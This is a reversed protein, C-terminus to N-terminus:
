ARGRGNWQLRGESLERVRGELYAHGYAVGPSRGRIRALLEVRLLGGPVRVDVGFGEPDSRPEVQEALRARAVAAAAAVAGTGCAQTEGEVGREYTRMRITVRHSGNRPASSSRLLQIFDVNTGEPRFRRHLRLRRGVRDVEIREVDDVWCVLHPVGADVLDAPVVTGGDVRLRPIHALLRPAGLDVRVRRGELVEARRLGAKTEIALRGAALGSRAAYWALCRLGNGCMSPESGDPNFIRMRVDAVRSRELVLLGDVGAGRRADCLARALDRWAVRRPALRQSVADVLVFDNGTGALKTFPITLMKAADMRSMSM